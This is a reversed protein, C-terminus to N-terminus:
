AAGAPHLTEPDFAYLARLAAYLEPHEAHLAAPQEFFTETTV